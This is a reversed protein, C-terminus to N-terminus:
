RTGAYVNTTEAHDSLEAMDECTIEIATNM